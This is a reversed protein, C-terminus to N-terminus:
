KYKFIQVYRYQVGNGAGSSNTDTNIHLNVSSVNKVSPSWSINPNNKLIKGSASLPYHVNSQTNSQVWFSQIYPNGREISTKVKINGLVKNGNITSTLWLYGKGNGGSFPAPNTFTGGVASSVNHQTYEDKYAASAPQLASFGIMTALVGIGLVKSVKKRVFDKGM